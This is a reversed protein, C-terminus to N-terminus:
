VALNTAVLFMAIFLVPFVFVSNLAIFLMKKDSKACTKFFYETDNGSKFSLYAKLLVSYWKAFFLTM